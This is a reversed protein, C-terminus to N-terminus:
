VSKLPALPCRLCKCYMMGFKPLGLLFSFSYSLIESLDVLPDYFDRPCSRKWNTKETNVRFVFKMGASLLTDTWKASIFPKYRKDIITYTHQRLMAEAATPVQWYRVICRQGPPLGSESKREVESPCQNELMEQEYILTAISSTFPCM